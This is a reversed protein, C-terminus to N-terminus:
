YLFQHFYHFLITSLWPLLPITVQRFQVHVIVLEANKLHKELINGKESFSPLKINLVLSHSTERKGSRVQDRWCLVKVNTMTSGRYCASLSFFSSLSLFSSYTVKIFLPSM